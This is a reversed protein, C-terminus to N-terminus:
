DGSFPVLGRRALAAQYRPDARLAAWAPDVKLWALYYSRATVAQELGQFAEGTDGLLAHVSALAYPKEPHPPVRDLALLARRAAARDGLVAYARALVFWPVPHDPVARALTEGIAVAPEPNGHEAYALGLYSLLPFNAPFRKRSEEGIRIAETLRGAVTGVAVANAAIVPSFPDLRLADTVEAWASDAQGRYAYALGLWSHATAYSSDLAIAWHLERFATEWDWLYDLAVTGLTAHAEALRPDLQLARRAYREALGYEEDRDGWAYTGAVVHADALGAYARPYAPDV